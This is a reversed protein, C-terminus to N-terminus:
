QSSIAMMVGGRNRKISSVAGMGPARWVRAVRQASISIHSKSFMTPRLYRTSPASFMGSPGAMMQQLCWDPQSVSAVCFIKGGCTNTALRSSNRMGKKPQPSLSAPVM